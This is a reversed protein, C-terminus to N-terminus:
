KINLWKEGQIVTFGWTSKCGSATQRIAEKLHEDWGLWVRIPNFFGWNKQDLHLKLVFRLLYRLPQESDKPSYEADHGTKRFYFHPTGDIERIDKFIVTGITQVPTVVSVVWPLLADSSFLDLLKAYKDKVSKLLANASTLDQLYKECRVPALIVLRPSNMDQYTRQFFNTIQQPRNIADHWKGDDEMLAPADIAILVAVCEHLLEEVFKKNELPSKKDLYKGPFDQFHLQVSPKVGKKGFAFIFSQPNETGEIGGKPEFNDTLSKLEGLREQLIASSELDPTLQLNAKGITNEFQEYMATLLSTKGVGTPGLMAIKLEQPM